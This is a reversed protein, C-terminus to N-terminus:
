KAELSDSRKVFKFRQIDIPDCCRYRALFNHVGL